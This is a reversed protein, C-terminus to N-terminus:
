GLRPALLAISTFSLKQLLLVSIITVLSCFNNYFVMTIRKQAFIQHLFTIVPSVLTHVFGARVGEFLAKAFCLTVGASVACKHSVKAINGFFRSFLSNNWESVANNKSDPHSSLQAKEANSSTQFKEM